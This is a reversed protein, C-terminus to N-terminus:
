SVFLAFARRWSTECRTNWHTAFSRLPAPPRMGPSPTRPRPRTILLAAPPAHQLPPPQATEHLTLCHKSIHVGVAHPEGTHSLSRGRARRPDTLPTAAPTLLACAQLIPLDAMCRAAVTILAGEVTLAICLPDIVRMGAHM